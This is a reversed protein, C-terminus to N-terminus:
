FALAFSWILVASTIAFFVAASGLDKARGLLVNYEVTNADALAEIASNLLEVIWVLMISFIMLGIRMPSKGILVALVMLPLGIALEQRFAAEHAIASRLGNFSYRTAALVRSFGGKSKFKNQDPLM